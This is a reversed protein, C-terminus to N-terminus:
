GYISRRLCLRRIQQQRLYCIAERDIGQPLRKLYGSCFGAMLAVAEVQWPRRAVRRACKALMFLPHYGTMYNALGNKYANRWHGDASGTPKHQIVPTREFTRSTWGHFNAKVEDITDWGPAKALPGIQDWCHRRYIKTAGRVHFPPDGKSDVVLQGKEHRCVIGGGVGLLPDLEFFRLCSEFYDPAFSLDADLKAIYDWAHVRLQAYGAYFAEVVGGGPARHGRDGRHVVTMWPLRTSWRDLIEGTGDTSGDDIVIWQAPPVYQAAMSEITREIHGAEDRAPTIVV